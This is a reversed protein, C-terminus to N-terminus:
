LSIKATKGNTCLGLHDGIGFPFLTPFASIFYNLNEWNNLLIPHRSNKYTFIPLDINDSLVAGWKYNTVASVLKMTLDERTDNADTYIPM